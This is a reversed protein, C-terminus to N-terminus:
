GKEFRADMLRRLEERFEGLRIHDESHAQVRDWWEAREDDTMIGSKVCKSLMRFMSSEVDKALEHASESVEGPQSTVNRERSPPAEEGTYVNFGGFMEKILMNIFPTGVKAEVARKLARTEARAVADHFERKKTRGERTSCGGTGMVSHGQEDWVRVRVSVMTEDPTTTVEPTMTETSLRALNICKLNFERTTEISDEVIVFDRNHDDGKERGWSLKPNRDIVHMLKGYFEEQQETLLAPAFQVAGAQRRVLDKANSM